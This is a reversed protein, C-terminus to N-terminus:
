QVGNESLVTQKQVRLENEIAALREPHSHAIKNRAVFYLAKLDSMRALLQQKKDFSKCKEYAKRTYEHNMSSTVLVMQLNVLDPKESSSLDLGVSGNEGGELRGLGYVEFDEFSM